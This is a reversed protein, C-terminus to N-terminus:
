MASKFILFLSVWVKLQLQASPPLIEALRRIETETVLCFGRKATSPPCRLVFRNPAKVSGLNCASYLALVM